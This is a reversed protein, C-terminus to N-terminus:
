TKRTPTTTTTTKERARKNILRSNSAFANATLHCSLGVRCTNFFQRAFYHKVFYKALIVFPIYDTALLANACACQWKSHETTRLSDHRHLSSLSFFFVVVAIYFDHRRRNWHIISSNDNRYHSDNQTNNRTYEVTVRNQWLTNWTVPVILSIKM